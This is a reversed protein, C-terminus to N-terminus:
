SYQFAVAYGPEYEVGRVGPISGAISVVTIKEADPLYPGVLRVRGGSATASLELHLTRPDTALSALVQTALYQNEVQEISEPTPQFDAQHMVKRLMDCAGEMSLREINLCLDYLAPDRIDRGYMLRAWRLREQDVKRIYERADAETYGLRQQTRAIRLEMPAILRIRVFHRVRDLLLHGSYGFYALHGQRASELLAKRMLIQYPRRLESFQEYSQIARAVQDTVRTALDGYQNVAALLHERTLCRIGEQQALCEGLMQGGSMTGRSVLLVTRADMTLSGRAANSPAAV